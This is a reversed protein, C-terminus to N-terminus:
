QWTVTLNMSNLKHLTFFFMHNSIFYLVAEHQRKMTMSKSTDTEAENGGRLTVSCINHQQCILPHTHNNNVEDQFVLIFRGRGGESSHCM